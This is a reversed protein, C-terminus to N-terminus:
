AEHGQQALLRPAKGALFATMAPYRAKTSRVPLFDQVSDALPGAGRRVQISICRSRWFIINENWM